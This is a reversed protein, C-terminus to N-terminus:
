TPGGDQPGGPPGPELLPRGERAQARLVAERACLMRAAELVAPADARPVVVVGDGDGLVVDGAGCVVGGCAVPYGVEGTGEKGPGNGSAGRGFVAFGLRELPALDRVAGDVVLGVVGLAHARTAMLEGFLAHALSGQGNVVVVDGPRAHDLAHHIRLNDGSRVWVTLATGALRAGPWLPRIGGDMAGLRHMADAVTTAPLARLGEVTRPDARAWPPATRAGPGADALGPVERM